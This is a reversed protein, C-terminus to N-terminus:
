GSGGDWVSVGGCGIGEGRRCGMVMGRAGDVCLHSSSDWRPSRRDKMWTVLGVLSCISCTTSSMCDCPKGVVKLPTLYCSWKDCITCQQGKKGASLVDLFKTASLFRRLLCGLSGLRRSRWGLSLSAPRLLRRGLRSTDSFVRFIVIDDELTLFVVVVLLGVGLAGLLLFLNTEGEKGHIGKLMM